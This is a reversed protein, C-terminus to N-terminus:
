FIFPGQIADGYKNFYAQDYEEPSVIRIEGPSMNDTLENMPSEAVSYASVEQYIQREVGELHAILQDSFERWGASTRLVMVDKVAFRPEGGAPMAKGDASLELRAASYLRFLGTVPRPEHEHEPSQRSFESM